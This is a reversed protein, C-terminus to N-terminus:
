AVDPAFGSVINKAVPPPRCKGPLYRLQEIVSRFLLTTVLTSWGLYRM